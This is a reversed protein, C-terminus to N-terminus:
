EAPLQDKKFEKKKNWIIGVGLSLSQMEGFNTTLYSEPSYRYSILRQYSLGFNYTLRKSRIGYIVGLGPRFLLDSDYEDQFKAKLYDGKYSEFREEEDGYFSKRTESSFQERFFNFAFGLNIEITLHQNGKKLIYPWLYIGSSVGHIRHIHNVNRYTWNYSEREEQSHIRHSMFQYGGHVGFASEKADFHMRSEVAFSWSPLYSIDTLGPDPRYLFKTRDTLWSMGSEIHVGFEPQAAIPKMGVFSLVLLFLYQYKKMVTM